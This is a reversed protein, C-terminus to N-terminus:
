GLWTDIAEGGAVTMTAEWRFASIARREVAEDEAARFFRRGLSWVSEDRASPLSMTLGDLLHFDGPETITPKFRTLQSFAARRANALDPVQRLNWVEGAPMMALQTVLDVTDADVGAAHAAKSVADGAAALARSVLGPSARWETRLVDRTAVEGRPYWTFRVRTASVEYTVEAPVKPFGHFERGACLPAVEDVFLVLPFMAGFLGAKGELVCALMVERYPYDNADPDSNDRCHLFDSQTLVLPSFRHLKVLPHQPLAGALAARDVGGFFATVMRVRITVLDGSGFLPKWLPLGLYDRTKGDNMADEADDDRGRKTELASTV